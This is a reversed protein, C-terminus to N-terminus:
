GSRTFFEWEQPDGEPLDEVGLRKLFHLVEGRHQASHLIVHAITAGYSQPIGNHDNFSEDLRGASVLERTVREFRDYARAHRDIMHDVPDHSPEFTLARGEMQDTWFDIVLIIHDFSRRLSVHGIDYEADLQTDTLGKSLSMLATTMWRDHGLFRDLLDM